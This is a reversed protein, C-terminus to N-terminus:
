RCTTISGITQCVVKNGGLPATPQVQPAQWSNVGQIIQQFGQQLERNAQSVANWVQINQQQQLMQQQIAIQQQIQRQQEATAAQQRQRELQKQYNASAIAYPAKFQDRWTCIKTYTANDLNDIGSKGNCAKFLYEREIQQVRQLRLHAQSTANLIEQYKESLHNTYNNPLSVPESIGNSIEFHQVSGNAYRAIAVGGSTNNKPDVIEATFIPASQNVIPSATYDTFRYSIAGDIKTNLYVRQPHFASSQIVFAKGLEDVVSLTHYANFGSVGNDMKESLQTAAPFASDGIAYLVINNIYDFVVRPQQWNDGSGDHVTIEEVHHTDSIAIDRGLGFAFGNKCEGDWYARFNSRELQGPSTPLKCAEKKNVPQIYLKEQVESMTVERALLSREFSSAADYSMVRPGNACGTLMIFFTLPLLKETNM